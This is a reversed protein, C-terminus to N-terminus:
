AKLLRLFATVSVIKTSQIHHLPLLDEDGRVLWRVGATAPCIIFKADDQDRVEPVTAEILKASRKEWDNWSSEGDFRCRM